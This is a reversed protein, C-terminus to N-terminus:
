SYVGNKDTIPKTDNRSDVYKVFERGKEFEHTFYGEDTKYYGYFSDFGRYTPTYEWKHM